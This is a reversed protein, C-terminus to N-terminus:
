SSAEGGTAVRLADLLPAGDQVAEAPPAEVTVETGFDFLELVARSSVPQGQTAESAPLEIVQELKRLRGEDDVYADFPVQDLDAAGLTGELIERSLGEAAEVAAQADYTGRYHTTTEGRVEQTGVEEVDDSVGRLGGLAATPDTSSGLSTGAVDSVALEFFVGPQQPLALFISDGVIRQEITGAGDPLTFDLQGQGAAADFAGEATFVVDRDGLSTTSELVVRSSGAGTTTDVSARVAAAPQKGGAGSDGDSGTSGGSCGALLVATLLAAAPRRPSLRM